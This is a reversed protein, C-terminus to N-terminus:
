KNFAKLKKSWISSLKPTEFCKWVHFFYFSFKTFIKSFYKSSKWTKGYNRKAVLSLSSNQYPWRTFTRTAEYIKSLKVSLIEPFIFMELFNKFSTSNFSILHGSPWGLNTNQCNCEFTVFFSEETVNWLFIKKISLNSFTNVSSQVLNDSFCMLLRALVTFNVNVALLFSRKSNFTIDLAIWNSFFPM